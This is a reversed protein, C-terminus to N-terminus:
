SLIIIKGDKTYRVEFSELREEGCCENKRVVTSEETGSEHIWRILDAGTM